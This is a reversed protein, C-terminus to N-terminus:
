LAKNSLNYKNKLKNNKALNLRFIFQDSVNKNLTSNLKDKYDYKKKIKLNIWNKTTILTLISFLKFLSVIKEWCRAYKSKKGFDERIKQKETFWFRSALILGLLYVVCRAVFYFTLLFYDKYADWGSKLLCFLSLFMSPGFSFKYFFCDKSEILCGGWCIKFPWSLSLFMSPGFSFKYFFFDKPEILCGDWGSKLLWFLSLFMSSGFSFKYFFCDKSEILCGDWCIKFPWSLSLFMSPGFSFKYFFCDKSEILCGGWCIKFPWFSEDKLYSLLSTWFHSSGFCFLRIFKVLDILSKILYALYFYYNFALLM